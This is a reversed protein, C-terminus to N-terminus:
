AAPPLVSGTLASETLAGPSDNENQTSSLTAGHALFNKPDYARAPPAKLDWVLGVWSLAKLVYYTIDLEWWFFGQRTSNMFYHHNNHWGEGLTIIALLFSNKSLDGSAYRPKGIMHCLSNITFTGHYLLVTSLGFGIFLGSWGMFYWVTVALLASPLNPIVNLWVLEPYKTLDKIKSYDTGNTDDLIWGMHSYWFGRRSDHPDGDQDSYKHHTRHHAAWWLAGKQASTQALFALMFQFVRSTKYSRHAFYRHYAGTVGFMRVVYLVACVVFDRLRAGTFLAGLPLLHMLFFPVSAAWQYERLSKARRPIPAPASIVRQTFTM